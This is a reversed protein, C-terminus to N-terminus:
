VSLKSKKYEELGFEEKVKNIDKDVVYYPSIVMDKLKDMELSYIYMADFNKALYLKDYKRYYLFKFKDPYYSKNIKFIVNVNQYSYEKLKNIFKDIDKVIFKTNSYKKYWSAISNKIKRANFNENLDSYQPNKYKSKFEEYDKVGFSQQFEENSGLLENFVLSKFIDEYFRSYLSSAYRLCFGYDFKKYIDPDQKDLTFTYWDFIIPKVNNPAGNFLVVYKDYIDYIKVNKVLECSM